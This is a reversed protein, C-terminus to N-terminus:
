GLAPLPPSVPEGTPIAAAEPERTTQTRPLPLPWHELRVNGDQVVVFPCPTAETWTGSNLYLVDEHQAVLPLHTHGCTVFRFGRSRAYESARREILESNRQWLKTIRRIWRAAQHPM